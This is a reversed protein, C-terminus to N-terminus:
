SQVSYSARVDTEATGFCALDLRAIKGAAISSPASGGIFVWSPFSLTRTSSDATIFLTKFLGSSRNSTTFTVNGTLSLTQVTNTTLDLAISASYSIASVVARYQDSSVISLGSLTGTSGIGLATLAAAATATNLMTLGFTDCSLEEVNGAGATSRGLVKKTASVYVTGTNVFSNLYTADCTDGNVATFGAVLTAM